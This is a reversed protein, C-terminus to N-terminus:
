QPTHKHPSKIQEGVEKQCMEEKTKGPILAEFFLVAKVHKGHSQQKDEAHGDGHHTEAEAQCGYCAQFSM